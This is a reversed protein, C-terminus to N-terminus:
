PYIYEVRYKEKFLNKNYNYCVQYNQTLLLVVYNEYHQLPM